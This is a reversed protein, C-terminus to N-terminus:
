KRTLAALQTLRGEAAAVLERDRANQVIDRYAAVALTYEHRQEHLAALRALASLRFPENGGTADAAERYARLAGTADKQRERCRGLRYGIEAALAARPRLALAEQFGRSAADLNGDAEDLDALQYAADASQAAHPFEERYQALETRATAADGLQRHCMALDYHAAARVEASTSEGLVRTFSVAAQAFNKAEFDMLGLRLAVTAVLPSSPFFGLFREYASRAEEADGAQASADALLFQAQDASSYAPFRSVVQRFADAAETWKKEQYRQRGIQLLADAAFASTPYQDVLKALTESGGKQRSLRYLALETGRKAEAAYPSDPYKDAVAAFGQIASADRGANYDCQAMRLSALSGAAGQPFHDLLGSYCRRADDYKQAQFYVDGMRAWAKEAIACGASDRVLTEWRDVADGARDLRLYAVGAQYLALTRQQNAPWRHLFDEYAAAAERYRKQNFRAHAIDLVAGSVLDDRDKTTARALLREEAAVALSDRGTRAYTWALLKEASAGVAHDPFDHRLSALTSEAEPYRGSAAMADADILLAYARWTSHSPPMARLLLHPAGALQGLDGAEHWSYELMCLGAEVLERIGPSAFALQGRADRRAYRDLVIQFYPAAARPKKQDLLGLGALYAAAPAEPELPYGSVVAQYSGTADARRGLADLCRAVRYQASAAVRHQFYSTLVRNYELIAQEPNGQKVLAEGILFQARAAVDTGARRDVIGRLLVLASDTRGSLFVGGAARLEAEGRVGEDQAASAVRAFEAAASRADGAALFTNAKALRAPDRLPSEGRMEAVQQFGAAAKLPQGVREFAMAQLYLAEVTAPKDGIAALADNWQGAQAMATARALVFRSDRVLWPSSKSLAILREAAKATEGRRLDNWSEALRAAPLLPSAPFKKEWQAWKKMAEVDQGSAELKQIAVFEADDAFLSRDYSDGLEEWSTAAPRQAAPGGDPKPARSKALAAHPLALTLALAAVVPGASGARSTPRRREGSIRHGHVNM